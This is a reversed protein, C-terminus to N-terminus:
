LLLLLACRKLEAFSVGVFAVTAAGALAVYFGAASLSSMSSTKGAPDMASMGPCVDAAAVSYGVTTNQGCRACSLQLLANCLCGSMYGISPKM